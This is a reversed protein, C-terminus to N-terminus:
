LTPSPLNFIPSPLPSPLHLSPSMLIPSLAGVVHNVFVSEKFDNMVVGRESFIVIADIRTRRELHRLCVYGSAMRLVSSSLTAGQRRGEYIMLVDSALEPPQCSLSKQLRSGDLFFCCGTSQVSGSNTRGHRKNEDAKDSTPWDLRWRLVGPAMFPCRLSADTLLVIAPVALLLSTMGSM